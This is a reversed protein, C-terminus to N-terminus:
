ANYSPRQQMASYWRQIAPYEDGARLKIVRAFELTCLATIDAVSFHEGAIFPHQQLQQELVPLFKQAQLMSEEGWAPVVNMRDKFFGTGHQFCFGVPQMFSNELRRDWMDIIAKEAPMSGLLPPQPYLSELYCIIAASESICTGDDLELVPVKCLPNRARFEASLNDGKMLDVNIVDIDTIGKEAMVMLVRRPNPAQPASYLKM